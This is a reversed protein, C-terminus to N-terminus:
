LFNPLGDMSVQGNRYRHIAKKLGNQNSDKRLLADAVALDITNRTMIRHITVPKKFREGSAIRGILQEYLELSWPLGFWVIIQCFDNLGDVGHGLSAPHGIMLKIKGKNGQDIIKLLDQPKTSTLNVPNLDKYRKMIREADSKFNYGLLITKGQSEEIISDLVLLKEDHLQSWEPKGPENYAAGNAFQLCKNSVSARNFLEIETGNDLQTFMDKEVEHYQQTVKPPLDVLINNIRPFKTNTPEIHLTIDAIKQDIWRKGLETVEYTWGDFGQSFYAEKYGYLYSGLREGNDIVLYQGHLDMYGNAAPSGTLGTAYKIHPIIPRWGIINKTVEPDVFLQGSENIKQVKNQKHKLGSLLQDYLGLNGQTIRDMEERLQKGKFGQSKLTEESPETPKRIFERKLTRKGGSIRQSTSKKVKSIEDYVVMDFPLPKDQDIYYTTLYNSLWGMNEYNCLYVDADVSLGRLRKKENPWGIISFRLHKTHDWKRSEREWVAHIVRVPGFVLVKKVNGSRIRHEITTLTVPTKGFGCELWLMSKDNYLQHLVAKRQNERLNNPSLM